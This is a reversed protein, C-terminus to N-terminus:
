GPGTGKFFVPRFITHESGAKQAHEKKGLDGLINKRGSGSFVCIRIM